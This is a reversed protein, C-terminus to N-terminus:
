NPKFQNETELMMNILSFFNIEAEVGLSKMLIQNGDM